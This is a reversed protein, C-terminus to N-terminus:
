SQFFERFARWSSPISRCNFSPQQRQKVPSSATTFKTLGVAWRAPGSLEGCCMLAGSGDVARSLRRAISEVGSEMAARTEALAKEADDFDRLNLVSVGQAELHALYANEHAIGREQLVKADPSHWAPAPRAGIAM